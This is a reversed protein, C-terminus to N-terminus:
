RARTVMVVTATLRRSFCTETGPMIRPSVEAICSQTDKKPEPHRTGADPMGSYRVTSNCLLIRALVFVGLCEQLPDAGCPEPTGKRSFFFRM